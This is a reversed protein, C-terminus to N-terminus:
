PNVDGQRIIGDVDYITITEIEPFLEFGSGNLISHGRSMTVRGEGRLREEQQNWYLVDTKLSDGSSTTVVVNGRLTANRTSHEYEGSDAVLVVVRGDDSYYTIKVEELGTPGDMVQAVSKAELEWQLSGGKSHSYTVGQLEQSVRPSPEVAYRGPDGADPEVALREPKGGCSVLVVIAAIGLLARICSWKDM